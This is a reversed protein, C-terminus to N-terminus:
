LEHAPGYNGRSNSCSLTMKGYYFKGNAFGTAPMNKACHYTKGDDGQATLILQDGTAPHDGDYSFSLSLYIYGEATITPNAISIEGRVDTGLPRIEQILSGNLTSITLSTITPSVTNDDEDKFTLQQRFISQCLVFSVSSDDVSLDTGNLTMTVGTAKAFNLGSIGAASGNQGTFRFAADTATTSPANLQYFLCYTDPEEVTVPTAGNHFTLNGTLTCNHANASLNTPSLHLLDDANGCAFVSKSVNYVYIRETESFKSNITNGDGFEVAKTQAADAGLEAPITVHYTVAEPVIVAPEEPKPEEPSPLENKICAALGLSLLVMLAFPHQIRKM